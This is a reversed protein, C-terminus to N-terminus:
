VSNPRTKVLTIVGAMDIAGMPFQEHTWFDLATNFLDPLCDAQQPPM